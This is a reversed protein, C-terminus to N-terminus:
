AESVNSKPPPSSSEDTRIRKADVPDCGDSTRKRSIESAMTSGDGGNESTEFKEENSTSSVDNYEPSDLKKGEKVKEGSDNKENEPSGTSSSPVADPSPLEEDSDDSEDYDVLSQFHSYMTTPLKRARATRLKRSGNMTLFGVKVTPTPSSEKNNQSSTVENEGSPGPSPSSSTRPSSLPSPSPSQSRESHVQFAKKSNNGHLIELLARVKIVIKKDTLANVAGGGFVPAAEDEDIANKRKLVSPFMPEIGTKRQGTEEKKVPSVTAVDKDASESATGVELDEDDDFWQDENREKRASRPSAMSNDESRVSMTEERDRHQDYRIKIEKFTKVYNVNEIVEMHNEVVYKILPRVDESKVFDFLHLVASNIINYRNGNKRFCEMVPDLVKERVLYRVYKDDKVTVVRQLMKLASLVLFSHKSKLLVLIKNMLDQNVCRTRMSFSHHEVCFTLLRLVVSQRNAMMYDDKKIIGGSVNELMPKILTDFCRNYFLLLFESRDTKTSAMTEPDLLTKMILIMESGSTLHVDIDTLVHQIMRNLLVDENNEKTRSQRLLFDRITQSSSDVLVRLIDVMAARTEHDPSTFAPELSELMENNFMSQLQLVKFFTEKNAAPGNAPISTSLSIMEKLFLVLDRRRLVETDYSNLQGFLEQMAKKDKQLMSVIDVRCFFVHSGLTSLLNEEFLGLSPLCADQIYQARYLRHIKERLEPATINLVERYKAKEYVFERHRRPFKYAPDHEFMGIIAKIHKDDLLMEIVTNRNLMFLNKVISYFTRLGETHEIDECMKFVECLKSVVEDNEIAMTMKERASNSALHMHLLAELESLRGIEIPPLSVRSTTGIDGADSDDGDDFTHEPDGPDRGQVECIKQWLEECGTKEQFSLALDMVDTESWVILTEQQKQYVTDMLIRSELMNKNQGELRVLVMTNGANSPQGEEVPMQYTVVHGTGRDEWIRQDCLVYLKVRNTADRKIEIHDLIHERNTLKGSPNNERKKPSQKNKRLQEERRRADPSSKENTKSPSKEPKEPKESKERVKEERVPEKKEEKRATKEEKKAKEEQEKEDKEAEKEVSKKEKEVSKEENEVSEKPKEEEPTEEAEDKVEPKEDITEEPSDPVDDEKVEAPKEELKEEKEEEMKVPTEEEQEKEEEQKEQNEESKEVSEEKNIQQEEEIEMSEDSIEEIEEEKDNEEKVSDISTNGNEMPDDTIGNTDSM